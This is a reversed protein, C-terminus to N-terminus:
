LTVVSDDVLGNRAAVYARILVFFFYQYSNKERSLFSVLSQYFQSQVKALNQDLKTRVKTSIKVSFHRLNRREVVDREPVHGQVAEQGDDAAKQQLERHPGEVAEAVHHGVHRGVHPSVPRGVDGVLVKDDHLGGPAHGLASDHGHGSQDDM